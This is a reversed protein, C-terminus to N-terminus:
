RGSEMFEIWGRCIEAIIAGRVCSEGDPMISENNVRSAQRKAIAEHVSRMDDDDLELNVRNM